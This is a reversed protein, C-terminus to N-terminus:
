VKRRLEVRTAPLTASAAGHRPGVRSEGVNRCIVGRRAPHRRSRPRENPGLASAPRSGRGPLSVDAAGRAAQAHIGARRRAVDRASAPSRRVARAREEDQELPGRGAPHRGARASFLIEELREQLVDGPALGPQVRRDPPRAFPLRVGSRRTWRGCGLGRDAPDPARSEASQATAGACRRGRPGAQPAVARGGALPRQPRALARRFGNEREMEQLREFRSKDLAREIEEQSYDLGAFRVAAAFTELPRAKMDEYRMVHVPADAELWSEVHGSWGFMLQRLQKSLRKRKHCFHGNERSGMDAITRDFSEQGSHYAFSVSVDLPNRVLYVAGATARRSLMPEGDPLYTYADHTKMFVPFETAEAVIQEYVRPRLRDIEEHSIESSDIGALEDFVSRCSAISFGIGQLGAPEEGGSLLNRLFVRLWTNGSKPYSALWVIGRDPGRAQGVNCREETRVSIM